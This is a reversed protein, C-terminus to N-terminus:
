IVLKKNTKSSSSNVVENEDARFTKLTLDSLWTIKLMFIILIAIKNFDLIFYWYFNAFCIFVQNDRVLTPKHWYKIKEIEKDKIMIKQAFLIYDFFM